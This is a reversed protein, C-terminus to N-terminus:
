RPCGGIRRAPTLPSRPRCTKSNRMSEGPSLKYYFVRTSAGSGAIQVGSISIGAESLTSIRKLMAERGPIADLANRAFESQAKMYAITDLDKLDELHRYPDVVNQGFFTESVNIILAPPPGAKRPPEPAPAAPASALKLAELPPPVACSALVCALVSLSVTTITRRSQIFNQSSRNSM